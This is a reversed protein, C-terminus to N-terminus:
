NQPNEVRIRYYRQGVRPQRIVKEIGDGALAPLETWEAGTLTDSYDIRYTRNTETPFVLTFEAPDTSVLAEWSGAVNAAAPTPTHVRWPGQCGLRAWAADPGQPGFTVEDILFRAGKPALGTLVIQDGDSSIAFPAHLPGQEAKGDCFILRHEGPLLLDEKTFTYRSKLGFFNRALTIGGLPVPAASCNRIEVWDPTGGLEDTLGTENLAVVESIELPPRETEMALSFLTLSTGQRTFVPEDPLIVSQESLDLAELYFQIEAGAPLGPELLGSFLGDTLEGDEHLGDDYLQVRHVTEDAVDLRQWLLSISVIGVDDRGTAYFRIPVNPKVSALNYDDLSVVPEVPGNDPNERGPSPYPNYVFAPLGDHYRAYSVNEQQEPFQVRDIEAGNGDILSLVGGTGPLKFGTHYLTRREESFFVLLHGHSPFFATSPFPYDNTSSGGAPDTAILRLKWGNLSGSTGAGNFLEVWDVKRDGDAPVPWANNIALVENIVPKFLTVRQAQLVPPPSLEARRSSLATWLVSGSGVLDDLGDGDLDGSALYAGSPVDVTVTAQYEGNTDRTLITICSLIRCSVAVDKTGDGDFDGLTVGSTPFDTGPLADSARFFDIGDLGLFLMTGHGSGVLLDLDGDGNVDAAVIDRTGFKGETPSPYDYRTLEETTLLDGQNEIVVVDGAYGAGALDIDGDQDFDGAVMVRSEYVFRHARTFTFGGQGDGKFFALRCDFFGAALDINTDNDFDAAVLAFLSGSADPPLYYRQEPGFGGQGDGLRVSVSGREIGATGLNATVMDAIGDNNVDVTAQASPLAGMSYFTPPGLIGNAEALRVSFEASARHLQVVDDRGDKNFDFVALGSVEGDVPYLQDLAGFGTQGPYTILLSVDRSDRNMVAVDPRDDANFDASVLERPSRGVPMETSAVLVGNSNQYTLVRDFNRLVVALDNWGDGDLDVIQLARPGGPVNIRQSIQEEFRTPSDTGRHIEITGFDRSATVLDLRGSAAPESLPGIEISHAEQNPILGAVALVGNEDPALIWVTDSDAHTVALEDRGAGEPRFTKMSYVPKPFDLNIASLSTLNTVIDFGGGGTSRLQRLGNTTGAVVLDPHGDGDFDGAALNRAGNWTSLSIPSGFSGDVNVFLFVQGDYPAAAAIDPRDDGTLDAAVIGRLEQVGTQLHIPPRFRGEGLGYYLTVTGDTNAVALDPQHDDDFDATALGKPGELSYLAPVSPDGTALRTGFASLNTFLQATATTSLAAVVLSCVLTSPLRQNLGPTGARWKYHIMKNM